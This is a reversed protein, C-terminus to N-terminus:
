EVIVEEGKCLAWCVLAVVYTSREEMGDIGDKSQNIIFIPVVSLLDEGKSDQCLYNYRTSM